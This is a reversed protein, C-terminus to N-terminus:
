GAAPTRREERARPRGAGPVPDRDPRLRAPRGHRPLGDRAEREVDRGFYRSSLHTLALLRVGADRALEAAEGRPRTSTERAREREDECFTAEHVLLDAGLAAEVVGDRRRRTAPSCSSAARDRRASCRRRADRDRGDALTVAEGRQLAGREPGFPVGLADATAVDFRGPRETRSSRTASRTARRPSRSPARASYGDRACRRARGCSSSSSRTPSGGSSGRAARRLARALGRPGYLTLPLERGRLAFTKLM